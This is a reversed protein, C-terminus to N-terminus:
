GYNFIVPTVCGGVTKMIESELRIGGKRGPRLGCGEAIIKSEIDKITPKIATNNAYTPSLEPCLKLARELIDKTTEPRPHPFRKGPFDFVHTRM